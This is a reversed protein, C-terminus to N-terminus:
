PSHVGEPIIIDVVPIKALKARYVADHICNYHDRRYLILARVIYVYLFLMLMLTYIRNTDATRSM